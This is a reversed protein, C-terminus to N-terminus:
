STDMADDKKEKDSKAQVARLFAELNSATAESSAPLGFSQLLAPLNGQSLAANFTEVAQRFQPSRLNQQLNNSEAPLHQQLEEVVKPDSLIGTKLLEDTPIVDNL